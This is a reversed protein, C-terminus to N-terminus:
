FPIKDVPGNGWLILTPAISHVGSVCASVCTSYPASLCLLPVTQILLVRGLMRSVSLASYINARFWRGAKREWQSM